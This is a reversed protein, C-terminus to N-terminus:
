KSTFEVVPDFEAPPSRLCEVARSALTLSAVDYNGSSQGLLRYIARCVEEWQGAEYLALAQEYADRHDLWAQSPPADVLEFLDVPTTIGKLRARCLRRTAFRQDLRQQTSGTILIPVGLYKTAGEVRSALNVVHGLPGYNFRRHSGTNGVRALGTNLGIGVGLPGDLQGRWQQELAPLAQQMALAARCALVPHDPQEAPANWMALMGDGIYNIVSGGYSAACSTLRDMVDGILRCTEAPGLRQSLASFNRIDTFMVTVERDRGELLTPDRQLANALESSFFQEFQIRSRAAEAERALRALGAGVAAALLQVVQAELPRIGVMRQGGRGTRLGYLAGVVEGDRGFIPSVVTAEVGMLSGAGQPVEAARYFTRREELLRNLITRSYRFEAGAETWHSAVVQWPDDGDDDPVTKRLLVMGRDLGVLDVIARATEDYFEASGAAARQVAIVTEFWHALREPTIDDAIGALSLNPRALTANALPQHLTQWTGSDRLVPKDGSIEIQTAGVMLRVPLAFTRKQGAALESGDGAFIPARRSLNEAEIETQSTQLIRLQDRSVHPDDIVLRAQDPYFMRGFELPGAEHELQQRQQKNSLTIYLM